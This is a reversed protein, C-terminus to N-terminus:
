SEKLHKSGTRNNSVVGTTGRRQFRIRPDLAVELTVRSSKPLRWELDEVVQRRNYRDLLIKIVKEYWWFMNASLRRICVINVVSSNESAVRTRMLSGKQPLPLSSEEHTSIDVPSVLHVTGVIGHKM